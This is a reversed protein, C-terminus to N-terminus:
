IMLSNIMGILSTLFKKRIQSIWFNEINILVAQVGASDKERERDRCLYLYIEDRERERERM